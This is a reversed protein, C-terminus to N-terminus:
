LNTLHREVTRESISLREGVDRNTGGAAVHRLVERERPTLGHSGGPGADGLLA